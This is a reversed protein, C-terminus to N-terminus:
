RHSSSGPLFGRTAQQARSSDHQACVAPLTGPLSAAFALVIRDASVNNQSYTALEPCSTGVKPCLVAEAKSPLLLVGSPSRHCSVTSAQLWFSSPQQQQRLQRARQGAAVAKGAAWKADAVDAASILADAKEASAAAPESSQQMPARLDATLPIPIM